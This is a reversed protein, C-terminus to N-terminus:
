NIQLAHANLADEGKELLDLAIGVLHATDREDIGADMSRLCALSQRLVRSLEDITENALLLRPDTM